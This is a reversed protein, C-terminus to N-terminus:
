AACREAAIRAEVCPAALRVFYPEVLRARLAVVYGGDGELSADVERSVVATVQSAGLPHGSVLNRLEGFGLRGLHAIDLPDTVCCVLAYHSRSPRSTVRITEPLTIRDGTLTTAERWRVISTPAIDVVRPRSKIPSFLVEPAAVRELLAAVGPAVSNGIGWYFTGDNALREMEKRHLISGIPEGAETGFRTWCFSIPLDTQQM